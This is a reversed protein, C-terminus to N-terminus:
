IKFELYCLFYAIYYEINNIDFVVRKEITFLLFYIRLFLPYITDKQHKQASRFDSEAAMGIQTIKYIGSSKEAQRSPFRLNMMPQPRHSQQGTDHRSQRSGM